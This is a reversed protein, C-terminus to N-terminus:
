GVLGLLWNSFDFHQANWLYWQQYPDKKGLMLINLLHTSIIPFKRHYITWYSPAYLTVVITESPQDTFKSEPYLWPSSESIHLLYDKIDNMGDGLLASVMFIEKFNPWGRENAVKRQVQLESLISSSMDDKVQHDHSKHAQQQEICEPYNIASLPERESTKSQGALSNNTLLRVVDLLKRKTKLADIKNLILFSHKRPYLYLLRLVKPDLRDRTWPNSVDHVVGIVDAELMAIESDCHFSHELHHRHSEDANVLGPTDLFVLQTNGEIGIARANCRTTHVKRSISCVKRGVLQNIVTSKGANPVGIIAIKLLRTEYNENQSVSSELRSFPLSGANTDASNEAVGRLFRVEVTKWLLTSNRLRGSSPLLVKKSINLVPIMCTLLSHTM